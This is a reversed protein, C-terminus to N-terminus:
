PLLTMCCTRVCTVSHCVATILWSPVSPLLVAGIATIMM